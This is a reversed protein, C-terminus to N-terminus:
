EMEQAEWEMEGRSQLDWSNKSTDSTIGELDKTRKNQGEIRHGQRHNFFDKGGWKLTNQYLSGSGRACGHLACVQKGTSLEGLALDMILLYRRQNADSLAADGLQQIQRVLAQDLSGQGPSARPATSLCHSLLHSATRRCVLGHAEAMVSTGQHLESVETGEQAGEEVATPHM